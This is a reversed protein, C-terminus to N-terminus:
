AEEMGASGGEVAARGADADGASGGVREGAGGPGELDM